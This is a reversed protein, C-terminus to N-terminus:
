DGTRPWASPQSRRTLRVATTCFCEFPWSNKCTTNCPEVWKFYDKDKWAQLIAKVADPTDDTKAAFEKAVLEAAKAEDDINKAQEGIVRNFARHLSAKGM